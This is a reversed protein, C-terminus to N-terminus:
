SLFLAIEAERRRALGSDVVGHVENWLKIHEPVLDIDGGNLLELASSSAFHGTGINYALSCLASFQNSTVPTEILNTLTNAVDQVADGLWIEAQAETCTTGKGVFKQACGYGVTWRGGQDQYAESRFSEFEKILAIGSANCLM